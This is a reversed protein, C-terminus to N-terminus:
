AGGKSEAKAAEGDGAGLFIRLWFRERRVIEGLGMREADM